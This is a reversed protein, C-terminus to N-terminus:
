YQVLLPSSPEEVPETFPISLCYSQLQQLAQCPLELDQAVYDQSYSSELDTPMSVRCSTIPDITVGDLHALEQHIEWENMANQFARASENSLSSAKVSLNDGDYGVQIGLDKLYRGNHRELFRYM